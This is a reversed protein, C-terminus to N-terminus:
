YYISRARLRALARKIHRSVASTSIGLDEAIEKMKEGGFYYATLCQRQRETLEASLAKAMFAKMRKIDGLNDGRMNYQRLVYLEDTFRDLSLMRNEPM